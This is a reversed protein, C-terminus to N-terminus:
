RPGAKLVAVLGSADQARGLGKAPREAQEALYTSRLVIASTMLLTCSHHAIGFHALATALEMALLCGGFVALGYLETGPEAHHLHRWIRRFVLFWLVALVGFGVLGNEVAIEVFMNHPYAYWDLGGSVIPWAGTGHGLIPAQMFQAPFAKLYKIRAAGGHGAATDEEIWSDFMREKVDEPAFQYLLGATVLLVLVAGVLVGRNKRYVYYFGVVVALVFAVLNSRTGALLVYMSVLPLVIVPLLRWKPNKRGAAYGLIAGMTVVLANSLALHGAVEVGMEREATGSILGFFTGRTIFGYVSSLAVSGGTIVIVWLLLRRASTRDRLFVFVLFMPALGYVFYEGIKQAGYGPAGTYTLGILLVLGMVIATLIFALNERGIIPEHERKQVMRMLLLVLVIPIFITGGIAAFQRRGINFGILILINQIYTTGAILMAVLLEPAKIMVVTGIIGGALITVWLFETTWTEM